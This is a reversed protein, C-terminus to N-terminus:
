GDAVLAEIARRTHVRLMQRRYPAEYPVNALPKCQRHVREAVIAATEPDSLSKGVVEDLRTVVRPKAGLVGVVVTAGAIPAAVEDRELDFCLAVSTLPFDISGRVTWKSYGARRPTSVLPVIVATTVEGDERTTHRTGDAVYYDKMAVRRRGNPGVLQLSAGLSILVPVCDSSMAAVCNKGGPVVHCVTGESKICGGIASRWFDTQNVYRCRTDLNVNGGLTAQNRILPSAVLGAASCLSPAHARVQPCQEVTTLTAGAGIVLEQADDDVTITSLERVGALSVLMTPSELRHKLNPLLDTGGAILRSGPSQLALVAEDLTAPM